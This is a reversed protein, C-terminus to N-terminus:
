GAGSGPITIDACTPYTQNAVASYWFFQLACDGANECGTVNTPITATVTFTGASEAFDSFYEIATDQNYTIKGVSDTSPKVISLQMYGPHPAQIYYEVNFEVGAEIETVNNETEYVLGRCGNYINFTEAAPQDAQGRQSLNEIPAWELEDDGAGKLGFLCDARYTATIPRYSPILMQGHADATNALMAATGALACFVAPKMATTKWISGKSNGATECGTVSTPITATSANNGGSYGFSDVTLIKEASKYTVIGSSDTSPKVVSLVMTGPHPAQIWWKLDFPTGATLTTVPNAAEYVLGRCGDMINFTAAAPQDSQTRRSLLEIPAIQLEEDGAGRLAGCDARYQKSIPRPTPSTMMGHADVLPAVLLMSVCVTLFASSLSRLSSTM